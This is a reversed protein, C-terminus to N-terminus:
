THGNPGFIRSQVKYKYMRLSYNNHVYAQGDDNTEATTQAEM